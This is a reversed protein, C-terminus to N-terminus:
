VHSFLTDKEVITINIISYIRLQLIILFSMIEVSELRFSDNLFMNLLIRLYMKYTKDLFIFKM